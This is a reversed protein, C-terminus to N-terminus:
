SSLARHVYKDCKLGDFNSSGNSDFNYLYIVTISEISFDIFNLFHTTHNYKLVKEILISKKFLVKIFKNM